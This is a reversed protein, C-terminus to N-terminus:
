NEKLWNEVFVAFDKFDVIGDGANPAIDANYMGQMLWQSAFDYLLNIDDQWNQAFDAFDWFNVIGDGRNPAVDCSLKELKWQNALIAYDVFDVGDPCTFDASLFQWSLKPFSIGDECMRWIDNSGNITECVFDWNAFNTKMKMQQESLPQGFGNNVGTPMLFYSNFIYGESLGTLGGFNGVSGAAYCNTINGYNYGTLGGIMYDGTIIFTSYSNSISSKNSGCLGGAYALYSSRNMTGTSFCSDIIGNNNFGCLGGGHYGNRVTIDCVSYCHSIYGTDVYGCLGGTYNMGSVSGAVYCDAITGSNKGCLIGTNSGNISNGGTVSSSSYCNTISGTNAGCLGGANDNTGNINAISYCNIINGSDAYGSLGGVYNKGSVNGKVYCEYISGSYKYGCLGGIYAGKSSININEIGLNKILANHTYGFLGINSTSSTTVYTLNYIVHGDGDFVGSFKTTSNGIIKYKTGTFGAMNIDAVLMFYKDWDASMQGIENMDEPNAILYPDQEIGHGGSYKIGLSVVINVKSESIVLRGAVPAQEIICGKTVTESYANSITGTFLNTNTIVASADTLTMGTVNPVFVTQCAFVFLPYTVGEDIIWIDDVGNVTENVFDWGANLYTNLNKTAASRGFCGTIMGGTSGVFQGVGSSGSATGISYCNTIHAGSYNTGVFGGVIDASNWYNGTVDGTSYCNNINGTNHGVMGGLNMEGKVEANSFCQSITGSNVGVLGGISYSGAVRGTSSCQFITGKNEGAIAGVIGSMMGGYPSIHINVNRIKVNCVEGATGITGFLGLQNRDNALYTLNSIFHNQGDFSGNFSLSSDGAMKYRKVDNYEALNIDAVVKFYSNWDESYTGIANMDRPTGILYPDTETGSGGSYKAFAPSIFLCLVFNILLYKRLIGAFM